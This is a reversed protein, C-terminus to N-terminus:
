LIMKRKDMRRQELNATKKLVQCLIKWLQAEYQVVPFLFPFPCSQFSQLYHLNGSLFPYVRFSERLM